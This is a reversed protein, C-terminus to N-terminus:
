ICLTYIYICVCMLLAANEENFLLGSVKFSFSASLCNGDIQEALNQCLNACWSSIM